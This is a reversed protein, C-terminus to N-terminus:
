VSYPDGARGAVAADVVAAARCALDRAAEPDAGADAPARSEGGEVYKVLLERGDLPFPPTGVGVVEEQAVGDTGIRRLRLKRGGRTAKESSKKAVPVLPASGDTPTM